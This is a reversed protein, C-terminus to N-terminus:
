AVKRRRSAMFDVKLAVEKNGAWSGADDAKLAIGEYRYQSISGDVETITETITGSPLDGGDYYNAELACFYDDIQSDQRVYDFNGQHGEPLYAPRMVGDLGVVKIEAYVPKADFKTQLGFDLPGADTTYITLAIDRGVNYESAPM